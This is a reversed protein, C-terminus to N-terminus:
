DCGDKKRDNGVDADRGARGAEGRREEKAEWRRKQSKAETTEAGRQIKLVWNGNKKKLCLCAFWAAWVCIRNKCRSPPLPPPRLLPPPPPPSLSFLHCSYLLNRPTHSAKTPLFSPLPRTLAQIFSSFM